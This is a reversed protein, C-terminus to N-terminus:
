EEDQTWRDTPYFLVRGGPLALLGLRTFSASRYGLSWTRSADDFTAWSTGGLHSDAFLAWGEGLSVGVLGLEFPMPSAPVEEWSKSAGDYIVPLLDWDCDTSFPNKVCSMPALFGVEL